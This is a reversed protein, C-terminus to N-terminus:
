IRITGLLVTDKVLIPLDWDINNRQPVYAISTRVEKITQNNMSIEGSDKPILELIAKMLTSKGAGNPGVIGILKGTEFSFSIDELEQNGNYYVSLHEVQISNNM